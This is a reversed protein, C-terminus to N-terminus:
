TGLELVWPYINFPAYEPIFCIKRVYATKSNYPKIWNKAQTPPPVAKTRAVTSLHRKLLCKPTYCIKCVYTTKSNHAKGAIEGLHTSSSGRSLYRQIPPTIASMKTYLVNQFM